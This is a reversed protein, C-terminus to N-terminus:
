AIAEMRERLYHYFERSPIGGHDLRIPAAPKGQVTLLHSEIATQDVSRDLRLLHRLSSDPVDHEKGPPISAVYTLKYLDEDTLDLDPHGKKIAEALQEDQDSYSAVYKEVTDIADALFVGIAVDVGWLWGAAVIAADDSAGPGARHRIYMYAIRVDDAPGEVILGRRRYNELQHEHSDHALIDGNLGMEHMVDLDVFYCKGCGIRTGYLEETAQRVGAEDRMGGLFLGKLVKLPDVTYHRFIGFGLLPEGNRSVLATLKEGALTREVFDRVDEILRQREERVSRPNLHLARAIDDMTTNVFRRGKFMGHGEHAHSEISQIFLMEEVTWTTHLTEKSQFYKLEQRIM